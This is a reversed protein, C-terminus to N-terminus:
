KARFDIASRPRIRRHGTPHPTRSLIDTHPNRQIGVILATNNLSNVAVGLRPGKPCQTIMM